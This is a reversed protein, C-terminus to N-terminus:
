PILSTRLFFNPLELEIQTYPYLENKALLKILLIGILIKNAFRVGFTSATYADMMPLLMPANRVGIPAKAPIMNVLRTALILMRNLNISKMLYPTIIDTGTMVTIKAIVLNNM